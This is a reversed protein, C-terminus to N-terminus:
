EKNKEIKFILTYAFANKERLPEYLINQLISSNSYEAFETLVNRSLSYGKILVNNGDRTEFHSVWFNSRREVFNSIKELTQGWVETGSMASDLISQTNAFNAIRESLPNMQDLITQNQISMQELNFITNDLERMEQTNSLMSYTFYFTVFFLLPLIAFSHWGFQLFKQNEVIYKPLINIGRLEKDQEAYYEYAASIPITYSSVEKQEDESLSHLDFMDFKLESVNAEPFTGYFSLVLNESRDDGCIVVNDLRPIGGNEMELLIKSFYVDYTHLNQVGIDLTAGIHKLNQGELFILKSYEKGIYIILSYDEPFFKTTRSVFHALAIEASKISHIKYYRKGNYSALSNIINASIVNIETFVCLHTKEDLSIYDIQDRTLLIGKSNQIELIIKDINKKKDKELIGEYIHYTANPDTVVPIFQAKSLDYDVLKAALKSIESSDSQSETKLDSMVDLSEFSLDDMGISEETFNGIQETSDVSKLGSSSVTLTKHLFLQNKERSLIALKVELGELYVCVIPKM